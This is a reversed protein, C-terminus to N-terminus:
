GSYKAAIDWLPDGQPLPATFSRGDGLTVNYGHLHIFRGPNKRRAGYKVDGKVPHGALSMQARIQHFRGTKIEVELLTYNDFHFLIRYQLTAKKGSPSSITKNNRGKILFDELIGSDNDWQGETIVLYKKLTQSHWATMIKQYEEKTKAFIVLGSVPRDLRNVLYLPSIKSLQESWTQLDEDGSQDSQVPIGAAKNVVLLDGTDSIVNNINMSICPILAPQALVSKQFKFTHIDDLGGPFTYFLSYM